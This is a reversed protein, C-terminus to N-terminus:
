LEFQSIQARHPDGVTDDGRGFSSSPIALVSDQFQEHEHTTNNHTTIIIMIRIIVIMIIIM